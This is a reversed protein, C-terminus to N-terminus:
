ESYYNVAKLKCSDLRNKILYQENEIIILKKGMIIILAIIM